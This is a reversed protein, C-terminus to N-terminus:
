GADKGGSAAVAVGFRLAKSVEEIEAVQQEAIEALNERQETRLLAVATKHSLAIDTREHYGETKGQGGAISRAVLKWQKGTTGNVQMAAPLRFKKHRLVLDVLRKYNFGANSVSLAKGDEINGPTWFDGLDGNAGAAEVRSKKSPAKRAIIAGNKEQLRIRRCIEIFYPDLDRLDASNDGTWPQLWLLATGDEQKYYSSYKERLASRGKLMRQVDCSLHAGIGQDQNAPALGLCPRASFGGNMRAIGYNGRGLYGTMTQLTILAFIWDEPAGDSVITQKVDHNKSTVLIDLDDAATIEERYQKLGGPAPCQMFAPKGADDVVLRWPEDEPYEPTLTRLLERWKGATKLPKDQGSRHLAITALQALFAHWAHRQHPRLAPFSAVRDTAMSALVEPLSQEVTDGDSLRVRVLPDSLFNSALDTL